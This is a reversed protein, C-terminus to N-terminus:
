ANHTKLKSNQPKLERGGGKALKSEVNPPDLGGVATESELQRTDLELEGGWRLRVMWFIRWHENRRREGDESFRSAPTRVRITTKPAHDPLDGVACLAADAPGLLRRRPLGGPDHRRGPPGRRYVPLGPAGPLPLALDPRRPHPRQADPRRRGERGGRRAGALAPAAGGCGGGGGGVGSRPRGRRSGTQRSGRDDPVGAVWLGAAVEVAANDLVTYGADRMLERSREAGAYYEHNGLVAYVGLPATLTRLEPLLTEVLGADGDVLDGTVVVLDPGLEEIQAITSVLRKRGIISGLHLDSLQVIVLGDASVPLGPLEIELDITRPAIMGGIWAVAALVLAVAVAGGRLAALWPKLVLGFLTVADVALFAFLLLMLIGMWVGGAYEVVRGTGEWGRHFIIRGLPYSALGILLGSLLWRRAPAAAFVPLSSLRWGVYLHELAWIGFVISFFVLFRMHRTMM